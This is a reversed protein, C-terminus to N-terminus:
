SFFLFIPSLTLNDEIKKYSQGKLHLRVPESIDVLSATNEESQVGLWRFWIRNSVKNRVQTSDIPMWACSEVM